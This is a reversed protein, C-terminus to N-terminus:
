CHSVFKLPLFLQPFFFNWFQSIKRAVDKGVVKRAAVIEAKLIGKNYRISFKWSSTLELNITINPTTTLLSYSNDENCVKKILKNDSDYITINDSCDPSLEVDEIVLKVHDGANNCIVWTKNYDGLNTVPYNASNIYQQNFRALM